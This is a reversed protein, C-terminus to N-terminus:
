ANQANTPKRTTTASRVSGEPAGSRWASVPASMPFEGSISLRITRMM